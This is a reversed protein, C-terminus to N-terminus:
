SHSRARVYNAAHLWYNNRHKFAEHRRDFEAAIAQREATAGAQYATDSIFRLQEVSLIRMESTTDDKTM